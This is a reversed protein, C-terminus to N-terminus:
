IKALFFSSFDVVTEDVHHFGWGIVEWKYDSSPEEIYGDVIFEYSGQAMTGYIATGYRM